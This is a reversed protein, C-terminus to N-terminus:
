DLQLNAQWWKSVAAFQSEDGQAAKDYDLRALSDMETLWKRQLATAFQRYLAVGAHDLGLGQSIWPAFLETAGKSDWMRGWSAFLMTTYVFDTSDDVSGVGKLVQYELPRICMLLVLFIHALDPHFVRTIHKSLGSTTSTKNYDSRTELKGNVIFLNTPGLSSHTMRLTVEETARAPLGSTTHYLCYAREWAIHINSLWQYCKPHDWEVQRSKDRPVLVDVPSITSNLGLCGDKAMHTVLNLADQNLFFGSPDDKYLFATELFLPNDGISPRGTATRLSLPSCMRNFDETPTNFMLTSRIFEQLSNLEEKIFKLYTPVSVLSSGIELEQNATWLMRSPPIIKYTAARIEKIWLRSTGFPSFKWEELYKGCFEM